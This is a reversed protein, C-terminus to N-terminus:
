VTKKRHLGVDSLILLFVAVLTSLLWPSVRLNELFSLNLKLEPWQWEPIHWTELLGQGSGGSSSIILSTVAIGVILILTLIGGTRGILPKYPTHVPEAEIRDMVKRTFDGPAKTMGSERILTSIHKDKEM